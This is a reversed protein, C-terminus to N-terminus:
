KHTVVTIDYLCANHNKWFRVRKYSSQMYFNSNQFMHMKDYPSYIFNNWDYYRRNVKILQLQLKIMFAIIYDNNVYGRWEFM